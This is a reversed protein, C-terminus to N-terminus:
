AHIYISGTYCKVLAYHEAFRHRELSPYTPSNWRVYLCPVAQVQPSRLSFVTSSHLRRSKVQTFRHYNLIPPMSVIPPSILICLATSGKKRVMGGAAKM